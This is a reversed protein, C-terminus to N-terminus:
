SSFFVGSSVGYDDVELSGSSKRFTVESSDCLIVYFSSESRMLFRFSHFFLASSNDAAQLGQQRHRGCVPFM